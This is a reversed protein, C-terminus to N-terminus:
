LGSVRVNDPDGASSKLAAEEAAMAIAAIQRLRKRYAQRSAPDTHDKYPPIESALKGMWILLITAWEGPTHQLDHPGGWRQRQYEREALVGDLVQKAIEDGGVLALALDRTGPITPTETMPIPRVQPRGLHKSIDM